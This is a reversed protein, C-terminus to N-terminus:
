HRLSLSCRFIMFLPAHIWSCRLLSTRGSRITPNPKYRTTLGHTNANVCLIPLSSSATTYILLITQFSSATTYRKRMINDAFILIFRAVRQTTSYYRQLDGHRACKANTVGCRAWTPPRRSSDTATTANCNHGCASLEKANEGIPLM